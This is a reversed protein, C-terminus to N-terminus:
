VGRYGLLVESTVKSTGVLCFTYVPLVGSLLLQVLEYGRLGDDLASLLERHERAIPGQRFIQRSKFVPKLSFDSRM